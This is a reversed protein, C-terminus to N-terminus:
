PSVGTAAIGSKALSGLTHDLLTVQLTLTVSAAWQREGRGKGSFFLSTFMM